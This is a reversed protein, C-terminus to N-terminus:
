LNLLRMVYYLTQCFLKQYRIHFVLLARLKWIILTIQDFCKVQLRILIISSLISFNQKLKLTYSWLINTDNCLTCFTVRFLMSRASWLITYKVVRSSWKFKLTQLVEKCTLFWNYWWSTDTCVFINTTRYTWFDTVSYKQEVYTILARLRLEDLMALWWITIFINASVVVWMRSFIIIHIFYNGLGNNEFQLCSHPM